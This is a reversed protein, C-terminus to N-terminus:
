IHIRKAGAPLRSLHLLELPGKYRHCLPQYQMILDNLSRAWLRLGQPRPKCVRGAERLFYFYGAGAHLLPHNSCGGSKPSQAM